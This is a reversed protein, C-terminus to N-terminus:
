ENIRIGPTLVRRYGEMGFSVNTKDIVYKGKRDVYDEDFFSAIYNHEAYPEGFTNVNGTYGTVKLQNLSNKIFLQAENVTINYFHLTRIDGDKDGVEVKKTKNDPYMIVGRVLIRNDEKLRYKLENDIVNRKFDYDVIQEKKTARFDYPFGVHLVPEYTGDAKQVRKFYSVIGYNGKSLDDLVKAANTNNIRYPGISRDSVEAKGKYIDAVLQKLTVNRYTKNFNTQKLQWMEDECEISIPIKDDVRAVYGLFELNLIGDYGLWIEVKSGRTVVENINGDIIKVKRPMTIKATDTLSKWSSEIEVNNVYNFELRRGDTSTIKILCSLSFM